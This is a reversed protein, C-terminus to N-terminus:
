AQNLREPRPSRKGLRKVVTATKDERSMKDQGVSYETADAGRGMVRYVQNTGIQRSPDKHKSPIKAVVKEEQSECSFTDKDLSM